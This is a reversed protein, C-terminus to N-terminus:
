VARPPGPPPPSPGSGRRRRGRGRRTLLETYLADLRGGVEEDALRLARERAAQGLERRRAPDAALGALAVALAGADRPAVVLGSRGDELVEPMGGVRTAVIARGHAMAELLAVPLGESLSPFVVVDAARLAEEKADPGLWGTWDLEAGGIEPRDARAGPGALVLTVGPALAALRPLASLLLEGGKAPDDWGGLYLVRGPRANSLPAPAAVAPATNPVVGVDRAGLHRELAAAGVGSVSVVRDARRLVWAFARRRAPGLTRAFDEIDGAGAHIHLLVPFGLAQALLTFGAKRHLSGRVAAHIHVVGNGRHRGAWRVLGVIGGLFARHRRRAPGPRYTSIPDLAWREALPSALLGRVVAPMGGPGAPDPGLHAVHPRDPLPPM